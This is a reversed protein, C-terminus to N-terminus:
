KSVAGYGVLVEEDPAKVEGGAHPVLECVQYSELKLLLTSTQPDSLKEENL